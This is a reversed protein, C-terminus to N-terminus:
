GSSSAAEGGSGNPVAPAGAEFLGRAPAESLSKGEAACWREWLHRLCLIAAQRPDYANCSFSVRPWPKYHASFGFNEGNRWIFGGPPTLGRLQAQDLAGPPVDRPALAPPVPACAAAKAAGKKGRAKAEKRPGAAAAAAKAHAARRAAWAAELQRSRECTAKVTAQQQKCDAKDDHDLLDIAEDLELLENSWEENSAALRAAVVELTEVDSAGLVQQVLQCVADFLSMGAPMEIDSAKALMYLTSAGLHWCAQRAAIQVLAALEGIAIQV